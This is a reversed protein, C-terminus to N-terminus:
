RGWWGGPRATSLEPGWWRRWCPPSSHSRCQSTAADGALSRNNTNNPRARLWLLANCAPAARNTSRQAAGQSCDLGQQCQPGGRWTGHWGGGCLCWRGAAGRQRVGLVAAALRGPAGGADSAHQHRGEQLAGRRVCTHTHTHARHALAACRWLAAGGRGLGVRVGNRRGWRCLIVSWSGRLQSLGRLPPLLRTPPPPLTFGPALLLLLPPLPLCWRSVLWAPSGGDGSGHVEAARSSLGEAGHAACPPLPLAAADGRAVAPAPALVGPLSTTSVSVSLPRPPLPPAM